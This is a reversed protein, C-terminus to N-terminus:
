SIHMEETSSNLGDANAVGGGINQGIQYPHLRLHLDEQPSCVKMKERNTEQLIELKVGFTPSFSVWRAIRCAKPTHCLTM